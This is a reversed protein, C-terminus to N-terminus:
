FDSKNEPTKSHFDKNKVATNKKLKWVFMTKATCTIKCLIFYIYDLWYSDYENKLSKSLVLM